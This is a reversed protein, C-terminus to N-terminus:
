LDRGARSGDASFILGTTYLRGISRRNSDLAQSIRKQYAILRREARVKGLEIVAAATRASRAVPRLSRWGNGFACCARSAPEFAQGWRFRDSRQGGGNAEIGRIVINSFSSIALRASVARRM